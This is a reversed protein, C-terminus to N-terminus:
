FHHNGMLNGSPLFLYSMFFHPKQILIPPDRTVTVMTTEICPTMTSHSSSKPDRMKPLGRHYQFDYNTLPIM